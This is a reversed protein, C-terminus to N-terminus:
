VKYQLEAPECNQSPGRHATLSEANWTRADTRGGAGRADLSGRLMVAQASATLALYIAPEEDSHEGLKLVWQSNKGSGTEGM